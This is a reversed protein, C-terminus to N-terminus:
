RKYISGKRDRLFSGNRGSLVTQIEAIISLAIGEPTGAGIDLGVPSYLVDLRKEDFVRGSARIEDLLTETRKKPGLAGIYRCDSRLLRCLAERDSELNHSMVVGVAQDGEFVEDLLEDPRAVFIQGAHPFRERTAWAPRHDIISVRWGMQGAIAALPVADQGAGFILVSTPPNVIEIFYELDGDPTQYTKAGSYNNDAATAADGALQPLLKDIDISGPGSGNEDNRPGGFYSRSAIPLEVGNTKGILTAIAGRERREFCNRIFELSKNGRATELLVRVVGRCGMNLGFVSDDDKTTDYSVVVPGADASRRNAREVIDAELCGGSVTGITGGGRRDILMRAGALRYGSGRVDVVTALVADDGEPMEGTRCLIEQLEKMPFAFDKEVARGASRVFASRRSLV